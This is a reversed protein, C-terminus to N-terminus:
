SRGCDIWSGGPLQVELGNRGQRVAGTVTGKGYNSEAVVYSPAGRRGDGASAPAVAIAAVLGAGLVVASKALM